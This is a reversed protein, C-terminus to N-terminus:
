LHAPLLSQTNGVTVDQLEQIVSAAQHCVARQGKSFGPVPKFAEGSAPLVSDLDLGGTSPDVTLTDVSIGACTLGGM